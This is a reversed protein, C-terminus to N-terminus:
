NVFEVKISGDEGTGSVELEDKVKGDVYEFMLKLMASNGQMGHDAMARVINEPSLQGNKDAEKQLLERLARKLSVGRKSKKGAAAATKSNFPTGVKKKKAM